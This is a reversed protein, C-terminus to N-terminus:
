PITGVVPGQSPWDFPVDVCKPQAGAPTACRTPVTAAADAAADAGADSSPTSPYACMRAVFRGKAACQALGCTYTATDAKCTSQTFVQGNWTKSVAGAIPSPQACVAPCGVPGCANCSPQCYNDRTIAQGDPGLITLWEADCGTPAGACYAGSQVRLEFTAAPACAGGGGGGGGDVVDPSTTAGCAVAMGVLGLAAGLVWMTRM